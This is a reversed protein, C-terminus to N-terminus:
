QMRFVIKLPPPRDSQRVTNSIKNYIKIVRLLVTHQILKQLLSVAYIIFYDNCYLTM